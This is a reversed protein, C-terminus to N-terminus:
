EHVFFNNENQDDIISLLRCVPGSLGNTGNEWAEVTKKSVGFFLAFLSQSMGNSNRIRKVDEACYQIVPDINFSTIKGKLKGKKIAVAEELGQLLDNYYDSM